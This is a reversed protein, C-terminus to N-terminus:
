GAQTTQLVPESPKSLPMEFKLSSSVVESGSLNKQNGCSDTSSRHRCWGRSLWTSYNCLKKTEIHLLEPALVLFLSCAEVYAPISQVAKAAESKTEQENVGEQRATIQPIAFWDFFLFGHAIYSSMSSPWTPVFGSYVMSAVHPEVQLSGDVFGRLVSRLM